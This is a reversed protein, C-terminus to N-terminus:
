VLSDLDLQGMGVVEFAYDVGAGTTMEFIDCIADTYTQIFQKLTMTVFDCEPSVDKIDAVEGWVNRMKSFTPM